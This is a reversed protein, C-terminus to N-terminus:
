TTGREPRGVSLECALVEGTPRGDRRTAVKAFWLKDPESSPRCTAPLDLPAFDHQVPIFQAGEIRGLLWRETAFTLGVDSALLDVYRLLLVKRELAEKTLEDAFAQVLGLVEAALKDGAKFIAEDPRTARAFVELPATSEFLWEGSAEKLTARTPVSFVIRTQGHGPLEALEVGRSWGGLVLNWVPALRLDARSALDRELLLRLATFPRHRRWAAEAPRGTLLEHRRPHQKVQAYAETRLRLADMDRGQAFLVAIEHTYWLANDPWLERARRFGELVDSPEEMGALHRNYHKYHVVYSRLRGVDRAGAARPGGSADGDEPLTRENLMREVDTYLAAADRYAKKDVSLRRALEILGGVHFAATRRAEEEDGIELFLRHAELLFRASAPTPHARSPVRELYRHAAARLAREADKAALPYAAKADEVARLVWLEGGRAELVGAQTLTDITEVPVDAAALAAALVAAPAGPLRSALALAAGIQDGVISPLWEGAAWDLARGPSVTRVNDLLDGFAANTAEGSDGGLLRLSLGVLVLTAPNHETARALEMWRPRAIQPLRGLDDVQPPTFPIRQMEDRQWAKPPAEWGRSIAITPHRLARKGLWEMVHVARDRALAAITDSAMVPLMTTLREARDIILPFGNLPKALADLAGRVDEARLADLADETGQLRSAVGVVLDDVVDGLGLEVRVADKPLMQRIAHTKGVGPPGFLVCSRGEDLARRFATHADGHPAPKEM